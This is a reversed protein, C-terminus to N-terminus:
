GGGREGRGEGGGGGKAARGARLEQGAAVGGVTHHLALRRRASLQALPAGLAPRPLPSRASRCLPLRWQPTLGTAEGQRWRKRVGQQWGSVQRLSLRVLQPSLGSTPTTDRSVLCFPAPAPAPRPPAQM